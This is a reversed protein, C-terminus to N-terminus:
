GERGGRTKGRKGRRGGWGRGGGSRKEGGRLTGEGKKGKEVRVVGDKEAWGGRGEGEWEKESRV